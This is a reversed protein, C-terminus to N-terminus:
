ASVGENLSRSVAPAALDYHEENEDLNAILLDDTDPESGFFGSVAHWLPERALFVVFAAFIGAATMPRDKVAQLADDTLESSKDRVGSWAQNALSGPTLRQQLTTSTAHLRKKALEVEIKARQIQEAGTSKDKNM